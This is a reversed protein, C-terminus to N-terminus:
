WDASPVMFLLLGREGTLNALNRPKGDQDQAELMPLPAGVAPGWDDGYDGSAGPAWAILLLCLTVLHSKGPIM